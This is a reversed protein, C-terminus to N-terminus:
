LRLLTSVGLESRGEVGLKWLERDPGPELYWTTELLAGGATLKHSEGIIYHEAGHATQAEAIAVKDGLTLALQRQHHGGGKRGHSIVKLTSVSGRPQSRRTREFQAIQEALDLKDVVPLNIRLTRRGYDVFSASDVAKADQTDFDVIKRGKVQCAKVVALNKGTNTFTLEAGTAKADVTVATQGQLFELGAVTVDKGGVRNGNDDKYKIFLTRPETKKVQITAGELEWLVDQDSESIARPHCTVIIENKMQELGAYVYAMDVMTDDFLAAPAGGRLLHLRNWFIARGERDFFFRGREAAAV